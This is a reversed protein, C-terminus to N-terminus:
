AVKVMEDLEPTDDNHTFVQHNFTRDNTIAVHASWRQVDSKCDIRGANIEDALWHVFNIGYADIMGKIDYEVCFVRNIYGTSKSIGNRRAM